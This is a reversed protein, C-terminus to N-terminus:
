RTAVSQSTLRVEDDGIGTGEDFRRAFLGDLGHEREGVDLLLPERRTTVPQM